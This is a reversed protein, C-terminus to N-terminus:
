SYVFEYYTINTNLYINLINQVDIYFTLNYKQKDETPDYTELRKLLTSVLIYRIIDRELVDGTEINRIIWELKKTMFFYFNLLYENYDVM